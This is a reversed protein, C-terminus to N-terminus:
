NPPFGSKLSKNCKILNCEKGQYWSNSLISMLFENKKAIVKSDGTTCFCKLYLISAKTLMKNQRAM